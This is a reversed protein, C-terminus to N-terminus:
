LAGRRPALGKRSFFLNVLLVKEEIEMKASKAEMNSGGIEEKDRM